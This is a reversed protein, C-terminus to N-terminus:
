LLLTGCFRECASACGDVSSANCRIFYVDPTRIAGFGTESKPHSWAAIPMGDDGTTLQLPQRKAEFGHGKGFLQQDYGPFPNLIPFSGSANIFNSQHVLRTTHRFTLTEGQLTTVPQDDGLVTAVDASSCNATHCRAVRLAPTLHKGPGNPGLCTDKGRCQQRAADWACTSLKDCDTEQQALTTRNRLFSQCNEVTSCGPDVYLVLPKGGASTLKPVMYKRHSEGRVVVGGLAQTANLYSMEYSECRIDHCRTFILVNSVPLSPQGRAGLAGAAAGCPGRPIM